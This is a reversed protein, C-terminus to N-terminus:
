WLYPSLYLAAYVVLWGGVVYYWFLASSVAMVQLRPDLRRAWVHFPVVAFMAVGVLANVLHFLSLALFISGYATRHDLGTAALDLGAVAVFAGGLLVTALAGPLLRAAGGTRVGTHAWVAGAMSAVLLATAISPALLGPPAVDAPPWQAARGGLYFYAFVFTTHMSSLAALGIVMGWWGTSRGALRPVPETSTSM